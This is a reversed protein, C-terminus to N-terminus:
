AAVGPKEATQMTGTSIASDLALLSASVDGDLPPAMNLAQEIKEVIHPDFQTGANAQLIQVAKAQSLGRRYPRDSTMADYADAVHVIRVPLPLDEGARGHPYGTGDWNEHHLEVVDLYPEFGHVGELIRRGIVPHQKIVEFEAPDLKDPKGLIKDPIGIKGVDHLLAGIRLTSVEDSSFGLSAAIRCSLDAVRASHGATYPDRADVASALSGVFQLYARRLSDEGERIAVAARNFGQIMERIERIQYDNTHITHLKGSAASQRLHQAIFSVPSVVSRTSLITTIVAGLIGAAGLGIFVSRVTAQVPRQKEDVNALSRIEYGQPDPAATSAFSLFSTGNINLDCEPKERCSALGQQLASTDIGSITSQVLSGRRTLVLPMGLADFDPKQGISVIAITEDGQNLPMSTIQWTERGSTFFGKAPVKTNTVSFPVVTDNRRMVGAIAEGRSSSVALLDLGATQCLEVLQDELTLRATEGDNAEVLQLGAKLTANEGLIRLYRRNQEDNQVQMRTYLIQQDRLASRLGYHIVSGIIHEMGWFTALMLAALPVVSYLFTRVGLRM